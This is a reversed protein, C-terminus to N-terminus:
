GTPTKSKPKKKVVAIIWGILMGGVITLSIILIQFWFQKIIEWGYILTSFGWVLLAGIDIIIKIKKQSYTYLIAWILIGLLLYIITNTEINV